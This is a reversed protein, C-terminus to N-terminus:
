IRRADQIMDSLLDDGEYPFGFSRVSFRAKCGNPMVTQVKGQGSVADLITRKRGIETLRLNVPGMPFAVARLEDQAPQRKKRHAMTRHVLLLGQNTQVHVQTARINDLQIAGNKNRVHLSKFTLPTYHDPHNTTTTTTTAPPHTSAMQVALQPGEFELSCIGHDHQHPRTHHRKHHTLDPAEDQGKKAPLVLQAQLSVCPKHMSRAGHEEKINDLSLQSPTLHRLSVFFCSCHENHGHKPKHDGHKGRRHDGHKGHKHGGHKGHKHGGHKGKHDGHKGHKHGGHKRKRDGHKGHKHRHKNHKHKHRNHHLHRNHHQGGHHQAETFVFGLGSNRPTYKTHTQESLTDHQDVHQEWDETLSGDETTEPYDDQHIHEHGHYTDEDDVVDDSETEIDPVAEDVDEMTMSVDEDQDEALDSPLGFEAMMHQCHAIQKKHNPNDALMLKVKFKTADSRHRRHKKKEMKFVLGEIAETPSSSSSSMSSPAYQLYGGTIRLTPQEVEPSSVVQVQMALNEDFTELKFLSSELVLPAPLKNRPIDVRMSTSDPHYQCMYLTNSESTSPPLVDPSTHQTEPLDQSHSHERIQEKLAEMEQETMPAFFPLEPNQHRYYGRYPTFFLLQAITGIIAVTLLGFIVCRRQHKMWMNMVLSQVPNSPSRVDSEESLNHPQKMESGDDNEDKDSYAGPLLPASVLSPEQDHSQYYVLTQGEEIEDAGADSQVRTYEYEQNDSM